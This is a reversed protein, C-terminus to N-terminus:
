KVNLPLVPRGAPMAAQDVLKLRGAGDLKHFDGGVPVWAGMHGLDHTGKDDIRYINAQLVTGAAPAASLGLGKWPIKAEVTFGKDAGDGNCDGDVTLKYDMGTEFSRAEQWAPQRPGTFQADFHAGNPAFQMEVYKGDQDPLKVFLEIVDGEWLTDDNDKHTNRIDSDSAHATFYLNQDDWLLKAQAAIAKDLPRSDPQRAVQIPMATQWAADDDKGDIAPAAAAKGVQVEKLAEAIQGVAALDVPPREAAAGGPAAGDELAVTTLLVRGDAEVKVAGPSDVKLRRDGQTSNYLGWDFFGILLQASKDPWDGPVSISVSDKIIEGKKWQGVPYLGNVGYHDFPSRKKGPAELHVFVKWDGAIPQDVRFYMVLDFNGGVKPKGVIDYGLLTVKDEFKTDCKNQMTAPPASLVNAAIQQEQDKTLVIQPGVPRRCGASGAAVALCGVAVATARMMALTKMAM